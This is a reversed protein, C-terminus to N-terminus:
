PSSTCAVPRSVSGLSRGVKSRRAYRACLFANRTSSATLRSTVALVRPRSWTADDIRAHNVAATSEASGAGCAAISSPTTRPTRCPIGASRCFAKIAVPRTCRRTRLPRFTATKALIAWPAIRGTSPRWEVQGARPKIPIYASAPPAVGAATLADSMPPRAIAAWRSPRGVWTQVESASVQAAISPQRGSSAQSTPKWSEKAPVAAIMRSVGPMSRRTRHSGWSTRSGNATVHAACTPVSGIIAVSKWRMEGTPGM